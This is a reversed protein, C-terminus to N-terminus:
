LIEEQTAAAYAEKLAQPLQGKNSSLVGDDPGWGTEAVWQIIRARQAQRLKRQEIIPVRLETAARDRLEIEVAKDVEDRRLLYVCTDGLTLKRVERFEEFDFVRRRMGNKSLFMRSAATTISVWDELEAVEEPLMFKEGKM